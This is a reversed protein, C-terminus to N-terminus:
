LKMGGRRQSSGPVAEPMVQVREASKLIRKPTWVEPRGPRSVVVLNRERLERLAPLTITVKGESIEVGVIDQSNKKWFKWRRDWASLKKGGQSVGRHVVFAGRVELVLSFNGSRAM